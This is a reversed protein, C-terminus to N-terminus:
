AAKKRRVPTPVEIAVPYNKLLWQQVHERQAAPVVRTWRTVGTTEDYEAMIYHLHNLVKVRSNSDSRQFHFQPTPQDVRPMLYENHHVAPRRRGPVNTEALVRISSRLAKAGAHFEDNTKMRAKEDSVAPV